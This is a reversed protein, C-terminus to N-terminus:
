DKFQVSRSMIEGEIVEGDPRRLLQQATRGVTRCVLADMAGGVVGGLIPVLRSFNSVSRQGVRTLLRLGIRKNLEVLARGPIQEIARQTLKNGRYRLGLGDMADKAVDGALSLLITTRTRSSAVDHGYIRAIAGAMRAQLVWSAGLASPVAVPLTIFGGLGTLFGTTFNKATERLILGDVRADNSEYDPDALFEIALAEAGALPGVGAIGQDLLYQALRRASAETAGKAAELRLM